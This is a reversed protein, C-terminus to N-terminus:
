LWGIEVKKEKAHKHIKLIWMLIAVNRYEENYNNATEILTRLFRILILLCSVFTFLRSLPSKCLEQNLDTFM